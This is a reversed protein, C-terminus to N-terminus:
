PPSRLLANIEDIPLQPPADTDRRYEALPRTSAKHTAGGLERIRGIVAAELKSAGGKTSTAQAARKIAAKTTSREIAIGAFERANEGVVDRIAQEAVEGSLEENGKRNVRGYMLGGGLDIPGNDDVFAVLRARADKLMNEVAVIQRYADTVRDKTITSDGAAALGRSGIQVLLANKSPCVHKSPCYKCWPGEVTSLTEGRKAAAHRAAITRHMEALRFGFSALDLGCLRAEDVKGTRTYVIRVIADRLGLARAAALAYFNLQPNEGAVEVPEGSKWDIVVVCEVAGSADHIKQIGIVDASGVIEFPGPNGYARGEGEGIIRGKHTSVDYALRVESRANPPVLAALEPPLADLHSLDAHEIRGADAWVSSTEARALVDSSPCNLRRSLSSATIM